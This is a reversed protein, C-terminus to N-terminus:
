SRFKSTLQTLSVEHEYKLIRKLLMQKEFSKKQAPGAPALTSASSWIVVIDGVAAATDLIFGPM